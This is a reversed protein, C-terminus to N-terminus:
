LIAGNKKERARNGYIIDHRHHYLNRPIQYCKCRGTTKPFQVWFNKKIKFAGIAVGILIM